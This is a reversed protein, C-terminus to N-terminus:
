HAEERAEELTKLSASGDGRVVIHNADWYAFAAGFVANPDAAGPGSRYFDVVKNLELSLYRAAKGISIEQFLEMLAREFAQGFPDGYVSPTLLTLWTEWGLYAEVGRLIAQPGLRAASHCAIAVFLSGAALGINSSDILRTLGVLADAEGHGVYLVLNAGPISAEIQARTIQTRHGRLELSDHSSNAVALVLRDAVRSADRAVQQDEPRIVVISTM